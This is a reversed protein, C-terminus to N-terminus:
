TQILPSSIRIPLGENFIYKDFVSIVLSHLDGTIDEEVNNGAEMERLRTMYIAGQNLAYFVWSAAM